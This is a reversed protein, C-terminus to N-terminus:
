RYAGWIAAFMWVCCIESLVGLHFVLDVIRLGFVMNIHPYPFHSDGLPWNKENVTAKSISPRLQSLQIACIPSLVVRLIDGAADGM